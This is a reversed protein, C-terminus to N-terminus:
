YSLVSPMCLFLFLTSSLTKIQDGALLLNNSSYWNGWNVYILLLATWMYYFYLGLKSLQISLLRSMSWLCILLAQNWKNTNLFKKRRELNCFWVCHIILCCSTLRLLLLPNLCNNTHKEVGPQQWTARDEFGAEYIVRFSRVLLLLSLIFHYDMPRGTSDTEWSSKKSIFQM